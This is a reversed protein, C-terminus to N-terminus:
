LRIKEIKSIRNDMFKTSIASRPSHKGANEQKNGGDPFAAAVFQTMANLEEDTIDHNYSGM